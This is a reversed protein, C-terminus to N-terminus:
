AREAVHLLRVLEGEAFGRLVEIRRGNALVLMLGLPEERVEVPVLATRALKRRRQRYYDFTSVAIGRQQCYEGRTLGSREYGALLEGIEEASRKPRSEM